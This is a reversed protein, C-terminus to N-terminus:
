CILFYNRIVQDIYFKSKNTQNIQNKVDCDVIKWNHRSPDEQTSGTSLLSLHTKSLSMVCHRRYPKFRRGRPRSDLVRGNLWQAGVHIDFTHWIDLDYMKQINSFSKGGCPICKYFRLPWPGTIWFKNGVNFNTVLECMRVSLFLICELPKFIPLTWWTFLPNFLKALM